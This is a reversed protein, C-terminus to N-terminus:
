SKWEAPHTGLPQPMIDWGVEAGDVLGVHKTSTLAGFGSERTELLAQVAADEFASDPVDFGDELRGLAALWRQVGGLSVDVKYSGGETERRHLAALIGYALFYGAGHDLAQTPLPRAVVGRDGAAAAESVNM